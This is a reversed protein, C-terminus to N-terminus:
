QRIGSTSLDQLAIDPMRKRLLCGRHYFALWDNPDLHVALSFEEIAEQYQGVKAYIRGRYTRAIAHSPDRQLLLTFDSLAVMWNCSHFYQLGHTLLADTRGPNISFTQFVFIVSM